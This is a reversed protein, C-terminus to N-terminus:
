KSGKKLAEAAARDKARAGELINVAGNNGETCAYEFLPGDIKSMPIIASWPKTWTSPDDITYKYEITDADIRTFRETIRMTAANSGLYASEPRFNTTEVVLTNGDWHGRPDGHWQRIRPSIHPRGDLPIIRTESGWEYEIMVYGPGQVIYADRNYSSGTPIPPGSFTLCREGLSLDEPGRFVRSDTGTEREDARLPHAALRARAEATRSPLRGDPPDVILSTRRNPKVGNQWADLAFVTADYVPTEAANAFTFEYSHDVGAKYFAATEEDTFFERTGYKVPRELPTFSLLTWYGQLDPQGDPTRSITWPKAAPAKAPAKAPAASQAQAAVFVPAVSVIATVLALIGLSAFLRHKM